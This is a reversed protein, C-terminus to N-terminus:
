TLSAAVSEFGEEFFHSLVVGFLHRLKLGPFRTFTASFKSAWFAAVSVVVTSVKSRENEVGTVTAM